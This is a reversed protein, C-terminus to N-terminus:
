LPMLMMKLLANKMASSQAFHAAFIILIILYLNFDFRYNKKMFSDSFEIFIEFSLPLSALDTGM